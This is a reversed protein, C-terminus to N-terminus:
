KFTLVIGLGFTVVACVAYIAFTLWYMVPANDRSYLRIRGWWGQAKIEGQKLGDVILWTFVLFLVLFFASYM